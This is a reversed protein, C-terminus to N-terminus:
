PWRPAPARPALIRCPTRAGRQRAEVAVRVQTFTRQEAVRLVARSRVDGAVWHEGASWSPLTLSTGSTFEAGGAVALRARLHLTGCSEELPGGASDLAEASMAARAAGPPVSEPRFWCCAATEAAAAALALEAWPVLLMADVLARREDLKLVRRQAGSRDLDLLAAGAARTADNYERFSM